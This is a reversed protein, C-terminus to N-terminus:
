YLDNVDILILLIIGCDFEICGSGLVCRFVKCQGNSAGMSYLVKEGVM